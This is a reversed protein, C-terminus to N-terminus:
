TPKLNTPPNRPSQHNASVKATWQLLAQFWWLLRANKRTLESWVPRKLSRMKKPIPQLNQTGVKPLSIGARNTLFSAKCTIHRKRLNKAYANGTRTSPVIVKRSKTAVLTEPPGIWSSDIKFDARWKLRLNSTSKRSLPRLQSCKSGISQQSYRCYPLWRYNKEM